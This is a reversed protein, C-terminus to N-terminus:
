PLFEEHVVKAQLFVCPCAPSKGALVVGPTEGCTLAPGCSDLNKRLVVSVM